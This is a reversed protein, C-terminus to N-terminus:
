TAHPLFSVVPPVDAVNGISTVNFWLYGLYFETHKSVNQCNLVNHIDETYIEIRKWLQLARKSVGQIITNDWSDTAELGGTSEKRSDRMQHHDSDSAARNDCLEARRISICSDTSPSQSIPQKFGQVKKQSSHLSWPSDTIQCTLACKTCFQTYILLHQTITLQSASAHPQDIFEPMAWSFAVTWHLM